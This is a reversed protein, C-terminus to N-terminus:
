RRRAMDLGGCLRIAAADLPAGHRPRTGKIVSAVDDDIFLAAVGPPINGGVSTGIHAVADPETLLVAALDPWRLVLITWKALFELEPTVGEFTRLDRAIAYANIFRKMSRPNPEVLDVFDQLNHERTERIEPTALRRVAAGRFAQQLFPDETPSSRLAAMVDDETDAGEFASEAEVRRLAVEDDFKVSGSVLLLHDMYAAELEPSVAPLATSLQFTKALFLHGLPRGEEGVQQAFTGYVDEFSTRIWRGDAAVVFFPALAPRSRWPLWWRQSERPDKPPNEQSAEGGRVLTQVSELFRVVYEERCRDLDDIFFVVPQGLRHVFQEFHVAVVEMPDTNSELFAKASKM